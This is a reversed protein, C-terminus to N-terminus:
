WPYGHRRRALTRGRASGSTKKGRVRFYYYAGALAALIVGGILWWRVGMVEKVTDSETATFPHLVGYEDVIGVPEDGEFAIQGGDSLMDDAWDIGTDPFSEDPEFLSFGDGADRWVGGDGSDGGADLIEPDVGEEPWEEPIERPEQSLLSMGAYAGAGITGLAGVKGLSRAVRRIATSGSAVKAAKVTARGTAGLASSVASATKRSATSALSAVRASVPKVKKPVVKMIRSTATKLRKSATGAITRVTKGAKTSKTAAKSANKAAEVAKLAKGISMTEEAAKVTKLAVKGGKLARTAAYSGGLTFPAAVIGLADVGAWLYDDATLEDARGSSWKSAVNAADLPLLVDAAVATGFQAGGGMTDGSVMRTAGQEYANDRAGVVADIAGTGLAVTAGAARGADTKGVPAIASSLAKAAGGAAGVAQVGIARGAQSSLASTRTAAAQAIGLYNKIALSSAAGGARSAAKAAGGATRIMNSAAGTAIRTAAGIAGGLTSQGISRAITNATGGATRTATRVAQSATRTATKAATRVVATATKQASKQASTVTRAARNVAGTVAKSVGNFVDFPGM